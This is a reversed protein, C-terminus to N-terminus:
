HISLMSLKIYIWQTQIFKMASVIIQYILHNDKVFAIGNITEVYDMDLEVVKMTENPQAIGQVM